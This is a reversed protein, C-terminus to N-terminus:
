TKKGDPKMIISFLSSFRKENSGPHNYVLRDLSLETLTAELKGLVSARLRRHLEEQTLGSAPAADLARLVGSGDENVGIYFPKFPQKEYAQHLVFCRPLREISQDVGAFDGYLRQALKNVGAQVSSSYKRSVLAEANTFAKMQIHHTKLGIYRGPAGKVYTRIEDVLGLVFFYEITLDTLDIMLVFPGRLSEAYPKVYDEFIAKGRSINTLARPVGDIKFLNLVEHRPLDGTDLM